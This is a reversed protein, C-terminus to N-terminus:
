LGGKVRFMSNCVWRVNMKPWLDILRIRCHNVAQRIIDRVEGEEEDLISFAVPLYGGYHRGAEEVANLVDAIHAEPTRMRQWLVELEM